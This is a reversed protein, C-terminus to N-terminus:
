WFSRTFTGFVHVISVASLTEKSGPLGAHFGCGVARGRSLATHTELSRQVENEGTVWKTALILHSLHHEQILKHHMYINFFTLEREQGKGQVHLFFLM